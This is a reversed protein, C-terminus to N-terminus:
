SPIASESEARLEMAAQLNRFDYALSKIATRLENMAEAIATNTDAVVPV